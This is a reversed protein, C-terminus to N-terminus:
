GTMQELWGINTMERERERPIELNIKYYFVCVGECVRPFNSVEVILYRQNVFILKWTRKSSKEESWVFFFSILILRPLSSTSNQHTSCFHTVWRTANHSQNVFIVTETFSNSMTLHLQFSFLFSSGGVSALSCLRGKFRGHYWNYPLERSVRVFIASLFRVPLIHM